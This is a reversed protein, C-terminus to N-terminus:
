LLDGIESFKNVAVRTYIQTTELRAHGLMAQIYRLNVNNELQHTAFSHRLTHASVGKKIGAKAAAAYVVKQMSRESMKEGATFSEFLYKLPQYEKLYKDVNDLVTRSIVTVRDKKGKGARVFVSKRDFDIDNIRLGRLEGVRLGTSYLVQIMLKHKLNDMASIMRAIEQKSLVVPLYKEKKPRKVVLDDVFFKRKMIAGYYLKFANIALNVTSTAKGRDYMWDLYDKIDNRNIEDSFKSAFRLFERNYYLYAEITKVSFNRIRMERAFNNMPDRSEM